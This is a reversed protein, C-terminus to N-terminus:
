FMTHSETHTLAGLTLCRVEPDPNRPKGLLFFSSEDLYSVQLPASCEALYSSYKQTFLRHTAFSSQDGTHAVLLVKSAPNGFYTGHELLYLTTWAPRPKVCAPDDSVCMLLPKDKANLCDKHRGIAKQIEAGKAAELPVTGRM